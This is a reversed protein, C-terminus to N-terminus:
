PVGGACAKVVASARRAAVSASHARDHRGRGAPSRPAVATARPPGRPSSRLHPLGICCNPSAAAAPLPKTVLTARANSKTCAQRFTEVFRNPLRRGAGGFPKSRATAAHWFVTACRRARKVCGERPPFPSTKRHRFTDASATMSCLTAIASTAASSPTEIEVTDTATLSPTFARILGFM